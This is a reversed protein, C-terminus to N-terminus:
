VLVELNWSNMVNHSTNGNPLKKSGALDVTDHLCQLLKWSLAKAKAAKNLADETAL